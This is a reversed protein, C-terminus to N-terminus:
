YRHYPFLIHKLCLQKKCTVLDNLIDLILIYDPFLSIFVQLINQRFVSQNTYAEMQNIDQKTKLDSWVGDGAM